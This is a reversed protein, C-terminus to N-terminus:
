GPEFNLNAASVLALWIMHFPFPELYVLHTVSLLVRAVPPKYIYSNALDEANAGVIKQSTHICM